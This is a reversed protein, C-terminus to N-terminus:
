RRFRVIKQMKFIDHDGGRSSMKVEMTKASIQQRHVAEFGEFQGTANGM